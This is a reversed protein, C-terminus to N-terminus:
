PPTSFKWSLALRTEADDRAEPWSGCRRQRKGATHDVCRWAVRSRTLAKGIVYRYNEMFNIVSSKEL